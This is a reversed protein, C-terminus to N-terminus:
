ENKRILVGLIFCMSIVASLQAIVDGYRTYFTLENNPIIAASIVGSQNLPLEKTINGSPSIVMSIGTNTCRLVPRRNEIARYVAQKAHQQPEPPYEYWGDNVVYVLVQAGRKVFNASLSPVTSEFCIMAAFPTNQINFLRFEDGHTFNAQGLNLEKLSPFYGSLPIHEAMPVLMLKNYIKSVSDSSVLVVSNFFQRSQKEGTYYPIGSLLKTNGLESQIWKLYYQNGQLIYAPTASEPWIVVDVSKEIEPKSLTLLSEINQRIAGPKWKQSLHINPQILAIDIKNKFDTQPNPTLYLGTIWPIIFISVVSFLHKSCPRDIWNYICVNLLIIWFTIGYIGSIEANQVLTHFDLQTNALSTWPGGTLVDMNRIYEVSTWVLPMLWFWRKSYYSKLFGMILSIGAINLSCYLVAALMSIMGILPTTGINMALWFIVTLYYVFGWIFGAKFYAKKSDIRNLIFIFPVLSFWALWGLQLPQQALGTLIASIILTITFHSIRM